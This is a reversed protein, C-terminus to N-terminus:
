LDQKQYINISIMLSLISYGFGFGILSFDLSLHDIIYPANTYAFPTIYKLFELDPSINIFIHIFYLILPISIGLGLTTKKFILSLSFCIASIELQLLLYSFHLLLFPRLSFEIHLIFSTLISLSFCITNLIIIQIFVNVLKTLAITKKSLPHIYLFEKKEKSMTSIATISAFLAGGIGLINGCEVSYFGLFTGFSLQDLGFAQSFTGMNRFMNSVDEMQTQMQPYLIICILLFFSIGISWYLTQKFTQKIEHKLLVM